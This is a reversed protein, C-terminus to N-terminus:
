TTTSSARPFQLMEHQWFALYKKCLGCRLTPNTATSATLQYHRLHIAIKVLRKLHTVLIFALTKLEQFTILLHFTGNSLISIGGELINILSTNTIKGGGELLQSYVYQEYPNFMGIIKQLIKESKKKFIKTFVLPLLGSVIKIIGILVLVLAKTGTLTLM